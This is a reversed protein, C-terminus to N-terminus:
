ESKCIRHLETYKTQRIRISRVYHQKRDFFNELDPATRESVVGSCLKAKERDYKENCIFKLALAAITKSDTNERNDLFSIYELM